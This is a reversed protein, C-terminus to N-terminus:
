ADAATAATDLGGMNCWGRRTQTLVVDGDGDGTIVKNHPLDM